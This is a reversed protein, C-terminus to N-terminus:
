IEKASRPITAIPFIGMRTTKLGYNTSAKTHRAHLVGEYGSGVKPVNGNTDYHKSIIKFKKGATPVIKMEGQHFEDVNQLGRSKGYDKGWIATQQLKKSINKRYVSTKPPLGHPYLEKIKSVFSQVEANNKYFGGETLGGYQQFDKPGKGKDDKHSIWGVQEGKTNLLYFDAKPTGSPQGVGAVEISRGGCVMDLAGSKSKAITAELHIRFKKLFEDERATGSGQGKGGFEPSKLFDSPYKLPGKDSKFTTKYGPKKFEDPKPMPPPTKLVADGKKTMFQNKPKTLKVKNLFAIARQGDYKTLDNHKLPNYVVKELVKKAMNSEEFLKVFTKFKIM